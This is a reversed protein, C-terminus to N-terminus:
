LQRGSKAATIGDHCTSCDGFVELHDVVPIISFALTTHCAQCMNSTAVHDGSKGVDVNGNHCGGCDSSLGQHFAPGTPRPDGAEHAIVTVIARGSAGDDASVLLQVIYTGLADATFTPTLTTADQFEANSGDPKANFSWLYTLSAGTLSSATGNLTVSDDLTVATITGANASVTALSATPAAGTIPPTVPGPDGGGGGCGAIFVILLITLVYGILARCQAQIM